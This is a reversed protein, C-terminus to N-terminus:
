ARTNEEKAKATACTVAGRGHHLAHRVRWGGATKEPHGTGAEVRLGCVYCIGAHRNRM